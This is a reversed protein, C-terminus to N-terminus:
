ISSEILAAILLGLIPYIFLKISPLQYKFDNLNNRLLHKYFYIGKFGITGLYLFSILEIPGHISLSYILIPGSIGHSLAEEITIGLIFGNWVFTIGTLLGGTFYGVVSVVFGVLINNLFIKCFLLPNLVFHFNGQFSHSMKSSPLKEFYFFLSFFYGILWCALGILGFKILERNKM